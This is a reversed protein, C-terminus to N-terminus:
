RVGGAYVPGHHEVLLAFSIPADFSSDTWGGGDRHWVSGDATTVEVVSPGPEVTLADTRDPGLLVLRVNPREARIRASSVVIADFVYLAETRDTFELAPVGHPWGREEIRYAKGPITKTSM